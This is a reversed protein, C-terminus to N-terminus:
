TSTLSTFIHKLINRCHKTSFRFNNEPDKDLLVRGQLNSSNTDGILCIDADELGHRDDKFIYEHLAKRKIEEGM